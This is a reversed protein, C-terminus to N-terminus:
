QKGGEFSFLELHTIEICIEDAYKCQFCIYGIISFLHFQKFCENGREPCHSLNFKM